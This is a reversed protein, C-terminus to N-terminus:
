NTVNCKRAMQLRREGTGHSTAIDIQLAVRVLENLLAIDPHFRYGVNWHFSVDRNADRQAVRRVLVEAIHARMDVEVVLRFDTLAVHRDHEHGLGDLPM